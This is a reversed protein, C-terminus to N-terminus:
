LPPTNNYPCVVPDSMKFINNDKNKDLFWACDIVTSNPDRKKVLNAENWPFVDMRDYTEREERLYYLLVSFFVVFFLIPATKKDYYVLCPFLLVSLMLVIIISTNKDTM